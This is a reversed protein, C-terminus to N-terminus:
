RLFYLFFLIRTKSDHGSGRRVVAAAVVGGRSTLKSEIARLASGAFRVSCANGALFRGWLWILLLLLGNLEFLRAFYGGNVQHCEFLGVSMLDPRLVRMWGDSAWWRISSKGVVLDLFSSKFVLLAASFIASRPRATFPSPFPASTQNTPELSPLPPSDSTFHLSLPLFHATTTDDLMSRCSDALFVAYTRALVASVLCVLLCPVCRQCASM